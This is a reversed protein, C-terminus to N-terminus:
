STYDNNFKMGELKEKLENYGGVYETFGGETIFIQPITRVPKGVMEQLQEVTLDSGLSKYNYEVNNQECLTKAQTCFSCQPAGYIQVKM